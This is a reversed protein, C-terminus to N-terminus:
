RNKKISLRYLTTSLKDSDDDECLMFKMEEETSGAIALGEFKQTSSILQTMLVNGGLDMRGIMSGTVAGDEYVSVSDEAAALFWIDRGDFCADTFTTRVNGIRPLGIEIFALQPKELLNGEVLFMGNRGSPANGRHLFRWGDAFCAGEINFDVAPIGSIEQMQAFLGSLDFTESHFTGPDFVAMRNRANTSGSGFAFLKGEHLCLSEFDPKLKKPLFEAGTGALLPFKETIGSQTGFRYLQASKDSVLWIFGDSLAIGSAAGIGDITFAPSLTFDTM